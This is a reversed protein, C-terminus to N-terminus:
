SWWSWFSHEVNHHWARVAKAINEEYIECGKKGWPLESSWNVCILEQKKGDRIHIWSCNDSCNNLAPDTKVTLAKDSLKWLNGGLWNDVSGCLIHLLASCSLSGCPHLDVRDVNTKKIGVLDSVGRLSVDEDCPKCFWFKSHCLEGSVETIFAKHTWNFWHLGWM